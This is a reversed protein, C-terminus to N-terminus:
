SRSLAKLKPRGEPGFVLYEAQRLPVGLVDLLRFFSALEMNKSHGSEWFSVSSKTVGCLKAVDEQTLNNKERLARIRTGMHAQKAPDPQSEMGPLSMLDGYRSIGAYKVKKNLM